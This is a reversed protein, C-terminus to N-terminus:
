RVHKGQESREVHGNGEISAIGDRVRVAPGKEHFLVGVLAGFCHREQEPARQAGYAVVVPLLHLSESLHEVLIAPCCQMDCLAAREPSNVHM